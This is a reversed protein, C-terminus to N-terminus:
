HSISLDLYAGTQRGSLEAVTSSYNGAETRLRVSSLRNPQHTHFPGLDEYGLVHERQKINSQNNTHTHTNYYVHLWHRQMMSMLDLGHAVNTRYVTYHVFWDRLVSYSYVLQLGFGHWAPTCVSCTSSLHYEENSAWVEQQQTLAEATVTM